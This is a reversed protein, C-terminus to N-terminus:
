GFTVTEFDDDAHWMTVFQAEDEAALLAEPLTSYPFRLKTDSM